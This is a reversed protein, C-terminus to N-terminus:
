FPIDGALDDEGKEDKGIEEGEIKIGLATRNAETNPLARVSYDFVTNGKSSKHSGTLEIRVIKGHQDKIKDDLVVTPFFGKKGTATMMEYFHSDNGNQPNQQIKKAVVIGEIIKGVYPKKNEDSWKIVETDIEQAEKWIEHSM